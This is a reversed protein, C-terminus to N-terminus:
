AGSNFKTVTVKKAMDRRQNTMRPHAFFAFTRCIDSIQECFCILVVSETHSIGDLGILNYSKHFEASERASFFLNFM